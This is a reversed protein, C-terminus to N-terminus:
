PGDIFVAMAEHRHHVLRRRRPSFFPRIRPAFDDHENTQQEVVASFSRDIVRDISRDTM